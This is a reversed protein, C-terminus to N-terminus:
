KIQKTFRLYTETLIGKIQNRAKPEKVLQRLLIIMYIFITKM